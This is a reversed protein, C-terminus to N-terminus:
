LKAPPADPTSSDLPLSKIRILSGLVALITHRFSLALGAAACPISVALLGLLSAAIAIGFLFTYIHLHM